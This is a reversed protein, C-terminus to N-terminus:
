SSGTKEEESQDALKSIGQQTQGVILFLLMFLNAPSTPYVGRRPNHTDRIPIYCCSYIQPYLRLSMRFGNEWQSGADHSGSANRASLAQPLSNSPTWRSLGLPLYNPNNSFNLFLIPLSLKWSLCCCVTLQEVIPRRLDPPRKSKVPKFNLTKQFREATLICLIGTWTDFIVTGIVPRTNQLWM